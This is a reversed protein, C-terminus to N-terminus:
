LLLSIHLWPLPNGSTISNAPLQYKGLGRSTEFNVIHRGFLGVRQSEVELKSLCVGKCELEKVNKLCTSLLCLGQSIEEEREDAILRLHKQM